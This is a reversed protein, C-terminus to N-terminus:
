LDIILGDYASIIDLPARSGRTIQELRRTEAVIRALQKDDHVPEHHFMALRKASAAQCLEVGVINSSHGWDAKVSVAEALSYMADFIVLDAKHFFRTFEAHEAPNELKHESDTSYVVTRTLSEFRYGYSDGAHMQRKPTVNIGSIYRPQDPTMVDFEIKAGAQAYDVPFCPSQMQGRVAQEMGAHCGHVIIRNGPIYIPAFYPFGMLHDSQLHSVFVHYTQPNPIGFRAIKAQGLPRAGSGMDCIFHDNSDGVIEVCSTNGGFTGVVSFPLKDIFEDAAARNKFSKGDAATLAAVIKERIDRHTLSVPLSGRTGWFVVQKM